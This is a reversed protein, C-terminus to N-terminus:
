EHDRGKKLRQYEREDDYAARALEYAQRKGVRARWYEYVRRSSAPLQRALYDYNTSM